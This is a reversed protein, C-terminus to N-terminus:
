NSSAATIDAMGGAMREAVAGTEATRRRAAAPRCATRLTRPVRLLKFVCRLHRRRGNGAARAGRPPPLPAKACCPTLVRLGQAAV